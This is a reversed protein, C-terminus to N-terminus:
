VLIGEKLLHQRLKERTRKLSMKVKSQTYGFRTAIEEISDFYWYRCVFIKREGERLESLFDNISEALLKEEL